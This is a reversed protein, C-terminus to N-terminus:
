KYQGMEMMSSAHVQQNCVCSEYWRMGGLGHCPCKVDALHGFIRALQEAMVRSWAAVRCGGKHESGVSREQPPLFRRKGVGQAPVAVLVRM